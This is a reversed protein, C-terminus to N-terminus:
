LPPQFRASFEDAAIAGPEVQMAVQHLSNPTVPLFEAAYGINMQVRLWGTM